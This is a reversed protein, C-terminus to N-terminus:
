RALDFALTYGGIPQGTIATAVQFLKRIDGRALDLVSIQQKRQRARKPARAKIHKSRMFRDKKLVVLVHCIKLM